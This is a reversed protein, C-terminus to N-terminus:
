RCTYLPCPGPIPQTVDLGGTDISLLFLTLIPFPSDLAEEPLDMVAMTLCFGPGLSDTTSSAPRDRMGGM